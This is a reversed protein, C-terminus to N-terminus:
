KQHMVKCACIFCILGRRDAEERSPLARASSNPNNTLNHTPERTLCLLVSMGWVGVTGEGAARATALESVVSRALPRLQCGGAAEGTGFSLSVKKM